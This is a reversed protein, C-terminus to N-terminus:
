TKERHVVHEMALDSGTCVFFVPKSGWWTIATMVKVKNSRVYKFSGRIIGQTSNKKEIPNVMITGVTYFGVLLLQIALAVSKYFRDTVVLRFGKACGEPFAAKLNRVVLTYLVYMCSLMNMLQIICNLAKCERTGYRICYAYAWLLAYLDKDGM